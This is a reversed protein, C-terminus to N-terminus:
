ANPHATSPAPDDGDPSSQAPCESERLWPRGDQFDYPTGRRFFDLWPRASADRHHFVGSAAEWMRREDELKWPLVLGIGDAVRPRGLNVMARVSNRWDKMNRLAGRYTIPVLLAAALALTVPGDRDSVTVAVAVSTMSLLSFAAVAAVFLDVQARMEEQEQRLAPDATGVLEFWFQQSDLSYVDRGYSELALLSNGLRTALVDHEDSPYHELQELALRYASSSRGAPTRGLASVTRRLRLRRRRQWSTLWSDLPAPLHYGELLRYILQSAYALVIAIAFAAFAAIGLAEIPGRSEGPSSAAGTVAPVAGDAALAPVCLAWFLGVAVSTPLLWALAFRAIGGTITKLLDPV